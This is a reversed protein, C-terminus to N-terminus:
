LRMGISIGLVMGAILALVILGFVHRPRIPEDDM